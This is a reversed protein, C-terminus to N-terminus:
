ATTANDICPSHDFVLTFQTVPNVNRWPRSHCSANRNAIKGENSCARRYQGSDVDSSTCNYTGPRNNQIVHRRKCFYDAIRRSSDTIYVLLFGVPLSM